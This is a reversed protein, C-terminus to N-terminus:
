YYCTWFVYVVEVKWGDEFIELLVDMMLYWGEESDLSVM